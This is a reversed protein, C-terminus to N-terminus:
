PEPRRSHFVVDAGCRPCALEAHFVVAIGFDLVRGRETIRLPHLESGCETCRFPAANDTDTM